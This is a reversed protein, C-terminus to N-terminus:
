NYKGGNKTMWSTYAENAKTNLEEAYTNINGNGKVCGDLYQGINCNDYVTPKSADSPNPITVSLGTGLKWRSQVYNPVVKVGEPMGTSLTNYVDRIGSVVTGSGSTEEDPFLTFYSDLVDKDTTLPLTNCKNGGAKYAKYLDFRKQMGEKGFSMWKAFKYALEPNKTNKYVCYYDGIITNRGGPLGIFKIGFQPNKSIMDPIEYTYGFRLAMYGKDWASIMMSDSDLSGNGVKAQETASLSDFSMKSDYISKAESIANKFEDSNLHYASGDWTFYGYDKNSVSPLIEYLNDVYNMGVYEPHKKVETLLSKVDEWSSDYGITKNLDTAIDTNAFFGAMNLRCPVAYIGSKFHVANEIGSPITSWESDAKAYSSIDLAYEEALPYDMNPTMYVDAATDKQVSARINIWYDDGSGVNDVIKIKVNNAQEFAAVLQREPNNQKETGTDWSRYVLDYGENGSDSTSTADSTTSTPTASSATSDSAATTKCGTLALVSLLTFATMKRIENM